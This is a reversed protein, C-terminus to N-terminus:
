APRLRKASCEGRPSNIEREKGLVGGFNFQQQELVRSIKLGRLDDLYRRGSQKIPMHLDIFKRNIGGVSIPNVTGAAIPLGRSKTM